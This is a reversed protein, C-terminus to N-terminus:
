TPCRAQTEGSAIQRVVNAQDAALRMLATQHAQTLGTYGPDATEEFRGVCTMAPHDFSRDPEITWIVHLQALKSLLSEFRQIRTRVRFLKQDRNRPVRYIDPVGLEASLQASLSARIEDPLPSIWQHNESIALEGAGTRIVMQSVDVQSPVQVPLVEVAYAADNGVTDRGLPPVLTYFRTPVVSACAGLLTAMSLLMVRSRTPRM